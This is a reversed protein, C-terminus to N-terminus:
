EVENKRWWVASLILSCLMLSILVISLDTADGTKAAKVISSNKNNNKSSNDSDNIKVTYNKDVIAFSVPESIKFSATNNEYSVPECEILEGANDVGVLLVNENDVPVSVEIDGQIWLEALVPKSDKDTISVTYGKIVEREGNVSIYNQTDRSVSQADRSENYAKAQNIEYVLENYENSGEEVQDYSINIESHMSGKLTIGNDLKKVMQKFISSEIKPYGGNLSKNRCWKVTDDTVNNLEDTFTDSKMESQKKVINNVNLSKVLSDTGVANLGNITIYFVNDVQPNNNSDYGNLGAISGTSNSFSGYIKASNYSSGIIGGNKGAIGGATKTLSSGEIGITGNNACGYIKGTNEGAIGGCENGTVKGANRCGTILGNNKSVIGGSLEGKVESNFSSASVPEKTEPNTFIAASGVNIGNTCHDITGNNIAAIAGANVCSKNYKYDFVFLNNVNGKEGIIEFLGGYEAADINLGLICYGNGNFTGNFPKNDAASGIGQSWVSDSPAMINNELTYRQAGYLEYDSRVLQSLKVLDDYTRIILSGDEDKEFEPEKPEVLTNSYYDKDDIYYVTGGEFVPYNDPALGNDINQYWVQTGDAVKSNLLYAVEGSSFQNSNKSEVSLGAKSDKGLALSASTDLYYNNSINEATYNRAWGIIAGCYATDGSNSVEGYNYCDKVSPESNNLYGLIGGTFAGSKAAAVKGLNACNSIHGGSNTYGAVGGICDTSNSINISGFNLCKDVTAPTSNTKEITGVIGGVHKLEGGTNSINVRSTVNSITGSNLCGAIGGIHVGNVSFTINGEVTLNKITGYLANCFGVYSIAENVDLMAENVDLKLNSITHDAGDITGYYIDIPKWDHGSLNIDTALVANADMNKQEFEALTKDGQVLSSFWFLNGANTIVYENKDNLVAPEYCGCNVCFGNDDFVHNKDIAKYVLTVDSAPMTFNAGIGHEDYDVLEIQRRTNGSKMVVSDIGDDVTFSVTDGPLYLNTYSDFEIDASMSGENETNVFYGKETDLVITTDAFCAPCELTFYGDEDASMNELDERTLIVTEKTVEKKNTANNHQRLKVSKLVTDESAAKFRVTFTDGEKVTVSEENKDNNKIYIESNGSGSKAVDITHNETGEENVYIVSYYDNSYKKGNQVDELSLTTTKNSTFDSYPVANQANIVNKYKAYGTTFITNKGKDFGPFLIFVTNGDSYSLYNSLYNQPISGSMNYSNMNFLQSIEAPEKACRIKKNTGDTYYKEALNYYDCTPNHEDPDMDVDEKFDLAKVSFSEKSGKKIYFTNIGMNTLTYLKTFKENESIYVPYSVFKDNRLSEYYTVSDQFETNHLTVEEEADEIPFENLKLTINQAPYVKLDRDLMAGMNIATDENLTELDDVLKSYGAWKTENDPYKEALYEGYQSLFEEHLMELLVIETFQQNIGAKIYEYQQNALPLAQYAFQALVDAYNTDKLLNNKMSSISSHFIDNVITDGFIKERLKEPTNDEVPISAKTKYINCFENFLTEKARDMDEATAKDDAYNQAVEMYDKYKNLADEIGNGELSHVDTEWKANVTKMANTFNQEGISQEIQATYESLTTEIVELEELIQKCMDVLAANSRKQGNGFVWKDLFSVIQQFQECDTSDAIKTLATGAMSLGFTYLKNIAMSTASSAFPNAKITTQLAATDKIEDSGAPGCASFCICFTLIISIIKKYVKGKM